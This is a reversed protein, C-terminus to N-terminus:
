SVSQRQAAGARSLAPQGCPQWLSEVVDRICGRHGRRLVPDVRHDKPREKEVGVEGITSHVEGNTTGTKALSMLSMSSDPKPQVGSAPLSWATVYVAPGISLFAMALSGSTWPLASEMELRSVPLGVFHTESASAMRRTSTGARAQKANTSPLWVFAEDNGLM